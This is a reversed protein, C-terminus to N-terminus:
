QKKKAEAVEKMSALGDEFQGGVLVSMLLGIAKSQFDNNQGTMDWTVVTQDGKTKFVFNATYTGPMPKMFELKIKIRENPVSEVLTMMGDGIQEGSWKFIAGTGSTAGEYTEKATPEMKKWPSWAAWNHFDNVQEFVTAPPANISKTRAIRFDAPSAEILAAVLLILLALTLVWKGFGALFGGAPAASSPGRWPLISRLRPDRLGLGLWILIGFFISGIFLDGIRVHTATAGGLYGTLLIAGFLATRPFLYLVAAGIEVIALGLMSSEAWELKELGEMLQPPKVIKMVGSMVLGAGPLLSIIWGAVTM